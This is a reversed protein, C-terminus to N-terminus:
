DVVIFNINWSRKFLSATKLDLREIQAETHFPVGRDVAM